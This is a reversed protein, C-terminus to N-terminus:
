DQGKVRAVDTLAVRATMSSHPTSLIAKDGQIELVRWPGTRDTLWVIDGPEIAPHTATATM